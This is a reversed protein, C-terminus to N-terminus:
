AWTRIGIVGWYALYAAAILLGLTVGISFRRLSSRVAPPPTRWIVVASAVASGAFVVTALSLSVSWATANGLKGIPDDSARELVLVAALLSMVSVLPMAQLLREGTLRRGTRAARLM